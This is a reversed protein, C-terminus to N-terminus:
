IVDCDLKIKMFVVLKDILHIFVVSFIIGLSDAFFDFMDALRGPVFSQHIEDSAAFIIGIIMALIITKRNSFSFNGKLFLLVLLGYVFFAGFHLLKDTQWFGIQPLDFGPLSSAYIISLSAVILPVATILRIKMTSMM